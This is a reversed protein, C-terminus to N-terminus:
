RSGSAVSSAFFDPRGTFITIVRSSTIRAVPGVDPELLVTFIPAFFSPVMTAAWPVKQSCAPASGPEGIRPATPQLKEGYSIGCTSDTPKSTSELREM